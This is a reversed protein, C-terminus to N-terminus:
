YTLICLNPPAHKMSQANLGTNAAHPLTFQKDAVFEM